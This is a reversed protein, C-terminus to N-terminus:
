RPGEADIIDVPILETLVNIQVNGDSSCSGSTAPNGNGFARVHLRATLDAAIVDQRTQNDPDDQSVRHEPPLLASKHRPLLVNINDQNQLGSREPHRHFTGPPRVGLLSSCVRLRECRSATVFGAGLERNCLM